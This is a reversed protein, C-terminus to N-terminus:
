NCQYDGDANYFIVTPISRFEDRNLFEDAIDQNEDRPFVRLEMGAANAIRTFVPLGRYVDPCWGEGVVLMKAAGSKAAKTFFAVDNDSLVDTSTATYEEFKDHNVKIQAIYDDYTFGSAFRESTM